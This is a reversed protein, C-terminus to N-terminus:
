RLWERRVVGEGRNGWSWCSLWDRVLETRETIAEEEEEEEEEEKDVYITVVQNTAGRHLQMRTGPSQLQQWIEIDRAKVRAPNSLGRELGGVGLEITGQVDVVEYGGGALRGVGVWGRGAEGGWGVGLGYVENSGTENSVRTLRSRFQGDHEDGRKITESSFSRLTVTTTCTITTDDINTTTPLLYFYNLKTITTITVHLLLKIITTTYIKNSPHLQRCNINMCGCAVVRRNRGTLVLVVMVM